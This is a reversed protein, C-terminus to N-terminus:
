SKRDPAGKWRGIPADLEGSFGQHKRSSIIRCQKCVLKGNPYRYTNDVTLMHGRVPCPKGIELVVRPKSPGERGRRENDCTRCRVREGEMFVNAEDLLHGSRCRGGLVYPKPGRTGM